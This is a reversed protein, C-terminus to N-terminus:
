ARYYRASSVIEEFTTKHEISATEVKTRPSLLL